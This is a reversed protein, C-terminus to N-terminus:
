FKAKSRRYAARNKLWSYKKRYYKSKGKFVYGITFSSTLYADNHTPDGRKTGFGQNAGEVYQHDNISGAGGYEENDQYEANIEDILAQYSQSAFEAAQPDLDEPNAYADSIDDLYDTFTYRYSLEWGFRWHNNSTIYVGIGMPIAVSIKSYENEQGETKWPRLDFWQGDYLLQGNATIQGQPNHYFGALGGFLYANLKNSYYGRNGLDTDLFFTWEGRASLEYITNRFNLNRARRAPNTSNYDYDEIKIYNFGGLISFKKNIKYRTYLGITPNTENIHIDFISTRRPLEKGGIDGLYGSGGLNVGLEWQYQSYGCLSLTLIALLLTIRKMIAPNYITVIM